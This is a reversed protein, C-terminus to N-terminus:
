NSKIVSIVKQKQADDLSNFFTFFKDLKAKRKAKMKEKREQYKKQMRKKSDLILEKKKDETLQNNKVLELINMIFFLKEKKNYKKEKQEKKMLDDFNTQQSPSLSLSDSIEKLKKKSILGQRHYKKWKKKQSKEKIRKFFDKKKSMEEEVWDSTKKIQYENFSSYFDIQNGIKKELVVDYKQKLKDKEQSTEKDYKDLLAFVKDASPSENELVKVFSNKAYEKKKKKYEKKEQYLVKMESKTDEMGNELITKQEESLDFEKSLYKLMRKRKKKEVNGEQSLALNSEIDLDNGTYNSLEQETDSGCSFFLLSSLLLISKWSLFHKM